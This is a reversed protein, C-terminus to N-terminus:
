NLCVWRREQLAKLAAAVQQQSAASAKVPVEKSTIPSQANGTVQKVVNETKNIVQKVLNCSVQPHL